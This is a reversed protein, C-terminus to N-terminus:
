ERGLLYDITVKFYDALKVLMEPEPITNLKFWRHFCSSSCINDKKVMKYQSKKKDKILFNLRDKFNSLNEVKGKGFEESRNLLYELSCDFYESLLILYKTSPFNDDRKWAYILSIDLDLFKSLDKIDFDEDELFEIIRKNSVM